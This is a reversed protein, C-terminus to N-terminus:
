KLAKSVIELIKFKINYGNKSILAKESDTYEKANDTAIDLCMPPYMVCWWNKGEACGLEIKLSTYYGCPLSFDEYDRTDYWEDELTAKVGYSIEMESLWNQCDREISELYGAIDSKAEVISKDSKLLHSYKELIKDRIKLKVSQDNDSNSNALIHLRITDEYIASDRETPLIAILMTTILLAVITNRFSKQKQM